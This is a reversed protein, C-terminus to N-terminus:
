GSRRWGSQWADNLGGVAQGFERLASSRDATAAAFQRRKRRVQDAVTDDAIHEGQADAVPRLSRLSFIGTLFGGVMAFGVLLGGCDAGSSAPM